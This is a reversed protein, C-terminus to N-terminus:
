LRAVRTEVWKVSRNYAGVLGMQFLPGITLMFIIPYVMLMALQPLGYSSGPWSEVANVGEVVAPVGILGKSNEKDLIGFEGWMYIHMIYSGLSYQGMFVLGSYHLYKWRVALSLTFILVCAICLDVLYVMCWTAADPEVWTTTQVQYQELYYFACAVLFFALFAISPFGVAITPTHMKFWRVVPKGCWWVTVYIALYWLMTQHPVLWCYAVDGEVGDNVGPLFWAIAEVISSNKELGPCANPVEWWYRGDNTKTEGVWAFAFSLMVVLTSGAAVTKQGGLRLANLLPEFAFRSLARCLLFFYLYWRIGTQPEVTYTSLPGSFGHRAWCMVELAFPIPKYMLLMLLFVMLDGKWEGVRKDEAAGRDQFGSTVVFLQMSWNMGVVINMFLSSPFPFQRAVIDPHYWVIPMYYWHFLLVPLIGVGRAASMVDMENMAEKGIKRTLGLSDPASNESTAVLESARKGLTTMDVKGNTLRPLAKFQMIIEPRMHKPLQDECHKKVPGELDEKYDGKPAVCAVLCQAVGDVKGVVISVEAIGEVKYIAAEVDEPAVRMGRINTQRDVRGSVQVVAKNKDLPNPVWRGVDGTRYMMGKGFPNKMFKADTSEKDGLYGTALFNGAICIEGNQGVPVEKLDPDVLYVEADFDPVGAPAFMKGQGPLFDDEPAFSWILTCTETAAYSNHVKCGNGLTTCVNKCAELPIPAGVNQIHKLSAPRKGFSWHDSLLINLVQASTILISVGREVLVKALHPFDRQCQFDVVCSGGYILAPFLEFEVVAWTSPTKVLQVTSSDFNCLEAFTICSHLMMQRSYLVAKPRGTSGSTHFIAVKDLGVPIQTAPKPVGKLFQSAATVISGKPDISWIPVEHDEAVIRPCEEENVLQLRGGMNSLQLKRFATPADPDLPAWVMRAYIIGMTIPFAQPRCRIITAVIDGETLGAGILAASLSEMANRLEGFTFCKNGAGDVVAVKDPDKLAAKRVLTAVNDNNDVAAHLAACRPGVKIVADESAIQASAEAAQQDAIVEESNAWLYIAMLCGLICVIALGRSWSPVSRDKVLAQLIPDENGVSRMTRMQTAEGHLTHIGPINPSFLPRLDAHKRANELTDRAENHLPALPSGKANDTQERERQLAKVPAGAGLFDQRRVISGSVPLLIVAIILLCRVDKCGTMLTPLKM